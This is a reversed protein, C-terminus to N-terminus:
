KVQALAVENVAGGRIPAKESVAQRRSAATGENKRARVRCDFQRIKNTARRDIICLCHVTKDGVGISVVKRLANENPITRRGNPTVRHPCEVICDTAAIGDIRATIVGATTVSAAVNPPERRRGCDRIYNELV